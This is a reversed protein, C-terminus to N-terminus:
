MPPPSSSRWPCCRHRCRRWPRTSCSRRSRASWRSAARSPTSILFRSPCCSAGAGGPSPASLERRRAAQLLEAKMAGGSGEEPCEGRSDRLRGPDGPSWRQESVMDRVLERLALTGTSAAFDVFEDFHNDIVSQSRVPRNQLPSLWRGPAQGGGNPLPDSLRDILVQGRGREPWRGRHRQPHPHHALRTCATWKRIRISPASQCCSGRSCTTRSTSVRCRTPTRTVSGDLVLVVKAGNRASQLGKRFTRFVEEAGGRAGARAATLAQDFEDFHSGPIPALIRSQYTSLGRWEELVDLSTRGQGLGVLTAYRVMFGADVFDRLSRKVLWSKGVKPM